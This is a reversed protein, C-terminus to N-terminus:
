LSSFYAEVNGMLPIGRFYSSEIRIERVKGISEGGKKV